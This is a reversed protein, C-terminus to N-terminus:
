SLILGCTIAVVWGLFSVAGSIFLPLKESSALSSFSRSTAVHSFKEIFYTNLILAAIAVMKVIFTQNSLYAPVAQIYLLGGTILLSALGISVSRHLLTIHTRNLISKKGLVWMLAQEDSYLVLLGVLIVITLHITVLM